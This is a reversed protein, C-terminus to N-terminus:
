IEIEFTRELKFRQKKKKCILNLILYNTNSYINM